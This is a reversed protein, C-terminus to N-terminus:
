PVPVVDTPTVDTPTTDTPTTSDKPTTTDKATAKANSAASIGASAAASPFYKAIASAGYAVAGIKALWKDLAPLAKFGIYILLAGVVVM